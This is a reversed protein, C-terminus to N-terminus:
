WKRKIWEWVRGVKSRFFFLSCAVGLIIIGVIPSTDIQPWMLVLILVIPIGSLALGTMIITLILDDERKQRKWLDRIRQQKSEDPFQDILYQERLNKM